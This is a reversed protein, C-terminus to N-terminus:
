DEEPFPLMTGDDADADVKEPLHRYESSMVAYCRDDFEAALNCYDNHRYTIQGLERLLQHMQPDPIGDVPVDVDELNLLGLDRLMPIVMRNMALKRSEKPMITDEDWIRAVGVRIMDTSYFRNLIGPYPHYARNKYLRACSTSSLEVFFNFRRLYQDKTDGKKSKGGVMYVSDIFDNFCSNGTVFVYKAVCVVDSGKKHQSSLHPRPDLFNKIGKRGIFAQKMDDGDFDDYIVIPQNDYKDLSVKADGAFFIYPNAVKEFDMDAPAGYEHIALLYAMAKAISTKGIGGVRQADSLDKSAGFYASIRHEPMVAYRKMREGAAMNLKTANEFYVADTHKERFQALTMKGAAIDNLCDRLEDRSIQMKEHRIEEEMLKEMESAYDFSAHVESVEYQHKDPHHKHILYDLANRAGSGRKGPNDKFLEWYAPETPGIGDFWNAVENVRREKGRATIVVAHLHAAKDAEVVYEPLRENVYAMAEDAHDSRLMDTFVFTQLDEKSLVEERLAYVRRVFMEERSKQRLIVAEADVKDKDHVIWAYSTIYGAQIRRQLEADFADLNIIANGDADYLNTVYMGVRMPPYYDKKRKAM